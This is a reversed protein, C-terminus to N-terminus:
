RSLIAAVFADNGVIKLYVAEDGDRVSVLYEQESFLTGTYPYVRHGRTQSLLERKTQKELRKVWEVDAVSVRCVVVGREGAYETVTLDPTGDRDGGTCPEVRYVYRRMLCRSFIMAVLLLGVAALVRLLRPAYVAPLLSTAILAASLLLLGAFLRKEGRKPLNPAYQAYM